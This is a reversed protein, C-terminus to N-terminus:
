DIWYDEISNIVEQSNYYYARIAWIANILEEETVEDPVDTYNFLVWVADEPYMGYEDEIDHALSWLDDEVYFAIDNQAEAIGEYYGEDYGAVWGADYGAEWGYSYGEDYDDEYPKLECASLSCLAMAIVAIVAILKKM